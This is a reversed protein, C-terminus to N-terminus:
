AKGVQEVMHCKCAIVFDQLEMASIPNSGKLNSNCVHYLLGMMNDTVDGWKEDTSPILAAVTIILDSLRIVGNPPTEEPAYPVLHCSVGLDNQGDPCVKFHEMAGDLGNLVGDQRTLILMIEDKPRGAKGAIYRFMHRAVDSSSIMNIVPPKHMLEKIHSLGPFESLLGLFWSALVVGGEFHEMFSKKVMFVLFMGLAQSHRNKEDLSYEPLENAFRSLVDSLMFAYPGANDSADGVSQDNTEASTQCVIHQIHINTVKLESFLKTMEDFRTVNIFEGEKGILGLKIDHTLASVPLNNSLAIQRKLLSNVVWIKEEQTDAAQEASLAKENMM